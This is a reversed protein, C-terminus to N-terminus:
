SLGLNISTRISVIKKLGEYNLHAKNNMFKVVQKFLIFDAAKQTLMFYKEFYPIIINTLDKL